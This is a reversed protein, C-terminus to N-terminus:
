HPGRGPLALLCARTHPTSRGLLSRGETLFAVCEKVPGPPWVVMAGRGALWALRAMGPGGIGGPSGQHLTRAALGLVAGADSEALLAAAGEAKAALAAAGLDEAALAETARAPRRGRGRRGPAVRRGLAVGGPVQRLPDEGPLAREFALALLDRHEEGVEPARQLEQGVPIGLLRPRQQVRDELPHHVGDVVVLARHVLDHAVPDHRQEARGEGVLVVRHARAIGREPHLVRDAAVGLLDPGSVADRQVDADAEVRALHDHAGDRVVEVHVVGGDALGNVQRRPHLLERGRAGDEDGGVHPMERLAVHLDARQPRDGDLPPALRHLDVLDRAGAGRPRAKLRRRRTSEAAEHATVGLDLLEGLGELQGALPPALEHRQDPLRSHALRAQEPLEGVRLPGLAPDHELAAGHGVALRGGVERHDPQELGVEADTVAVAVPFDALLDGALEEREIAGQLRQDRHEEREEVHGDLISRPLGEVRGLAPLAGEVRDPRQQEPFGLELRQQQDELVKM